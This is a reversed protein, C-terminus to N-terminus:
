RKDCGLGRRKCRSLLSPLPSHCIISLIHNEENYTTKRFINTQVIPPKQETVQQQSQDILTNQDDIKQEPQLDEVIKKNGM